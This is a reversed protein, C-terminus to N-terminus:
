PLFAKFGILVTWRDASSSGGDEPDKQIFHGTRYNVSIDTAVENSLMWAMGVALTTMGSNYDIDGTPSEDRSKGWLYGVGAYPLIKGRAEEGGTTDWYYELVPGMAYSFNRVEGQTFWRGELHFALALGDTLFYGGGPQVTWEQTRDGAANDYYSKGASSFSFGGGVLHSGAAVPSPFIEKDPEGALLVAPLILAVLLFNLRAPAAMM